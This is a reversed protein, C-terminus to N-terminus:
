LNKMRYIKSELSKIESQLEEIILEEKTFKFGFKQKEMEIERKQRENLLHMDMGRMFEADIICELCLGYYEIEGEIEFQAFQQPILKKCETCEIM